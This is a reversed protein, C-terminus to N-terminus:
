RRTRGRKRTRKRALLEDITRVDPLPFLTGVEHEANLAIAVRVLVDVSVNVGTEFRRLTPLSVGAARAVDLQSRGRALRSAAARRGIAERLTGPSEGTFYGNM